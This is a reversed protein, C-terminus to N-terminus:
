IEKKKKSTYNKKLFFRQTLRSMLKTPNSEVSKLPLFTCFSYNFSVSSFINTLLLFM